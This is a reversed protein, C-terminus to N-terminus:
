AEETYGFEYLAALTENLVEAMKASERLVTIELVNSASRIAETSCSPISM